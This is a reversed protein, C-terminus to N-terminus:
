FAPDRQRAISPTPYLLCGLGCAIEGLMLIWGLLMGYVAHGILSCFFAGAHLYSWDIPQHLLLPLLTLPGLFWWFLGYALGWCISSGASRVDRRFVLRAPVLAERSLIICCCGLLQPTLAVIGAILVFANNQAFWYSFAWGGVLGALGGVTVARLVYHAHERGFGQEDEWGM